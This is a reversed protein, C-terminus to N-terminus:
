GPPPHGPWPVSRPWPSPKFWVLQQGLSALVALLNDAHATAVKSALSAAAAVMSSAAMGALSVGVVYACSNHPVERSRGGTCITSKEGLLSLLILWTPHM